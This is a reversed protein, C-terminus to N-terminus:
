WIENYCRIYAGIGHRTDRPTGYDHLYVEKYTLLQWFRKIINNDLARGNGDMSMRVGARELRERYSTSTVHSGQDSNWILPPADDRARDVADLVFPMALTEDLAWNVIYRSFWGIVAVLYMWRRALCISTIDIAWVYNPYSPTSHRLLYPVVAFQHVRRSLNPGPYIAMIGM